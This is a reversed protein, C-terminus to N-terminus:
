ILSDNWSVYVIRMLGHGRRKTVGGASEGYGARSGTDYSSSGGRGHTGGAFGAADVQPVTCSADPLPQSGARWGM